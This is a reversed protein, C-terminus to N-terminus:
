LRHYPAQLLLHSYPHTKNLSVIKTPLIACRRNCTPLTPLPDNTPFIVLPSISHGSARVCVQRLAANDLVFTAVGVCVQRLAVNDLDFTAVGVCVQRLAVNDLAFTAVRV